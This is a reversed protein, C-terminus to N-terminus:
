EGVEKKRPPLAEETTMSGQKMRVDRLGDRYYLNVRGVSDWNDLRNMNKTLKWYIRVGEPVGGRYLGQGSQLRISVDVLRNLAPCTGSRVLARGPIKSREQNTLIILAENEIAACKVRYLGNSIVQPLPKNEEDILAAVSDIVVIKCGEEVMVCAATLGPMNPQQRVVVVGEPDVGAWVMNRKSINAETCVWGVPCGNSKQYTRCFWLAMATKGSDPEGYLECINGPPIGGLVNDITPLGSLFM